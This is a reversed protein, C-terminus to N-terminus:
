RKVKKAYPLCKNGFKGNQSTKALKQLKKVAAITKKGYIGDIKDDFLDMWTLFRQIKKVPEGKDGEQFYGRDPLLPFGEDFSKPGQRYLSAEADRRKVLGNLVKGGAKIYLSFAAEIEKKTRNGYRTLQDISGINFAFSTLADIQSTDFHYHEQFRLVKPLYKKNLSEELWKEATAKTIKMGKVIEKGTINKDASTIGYGITWIGVPDKYSELYLGEYHKVLALGAKSIRM